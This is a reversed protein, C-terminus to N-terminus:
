FKSRLLKVTKQGSLVTASFSSSFNIAVFLVTCMTTCVLLCYILWFKFIAEYSDIYM